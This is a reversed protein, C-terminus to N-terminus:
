HKTEHHHNDWTPDHVASEAEEEGEGAEDSRPAQAWFLRDPIVHGMGPRYGAALSQELYDLAEDFADTLASGTALLATLAAAFTEAAGAFGANQREVVREAITAGDHALINALHGNPRTIGTVITYAVGHSQALRALELPQPMHSVDREPMLWRWLTTHSGVLVTTLPLILQKSADWYAELAPEDMWPLAPMCTVLPLSDYDSALSAVSALNDPNGAFGLMLIAVDSDELVARAQEVVAEEDLPFFDQV